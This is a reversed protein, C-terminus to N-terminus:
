EEKDDSGYFFGDDIGQAQVQYKYERGRYFVSTFFGGGAPYEDILDMISQISGLAKQRDIQHRHDMWWGLAVAVLAVMLLLERLSLRLSQPLKM